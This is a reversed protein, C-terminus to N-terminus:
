KNSFEVGRLQHDSEDPHDTSMLLRGNIYIVSSIINYSILIRGVIEISLVQWGAETNLHLKSVTLLQVSCSDRSGLRLNLSREVQMSAKQHVCITVCTSASYFSPVIFHNSLNFSAVERKASLKSPLNNLQMCSHDIFSNM